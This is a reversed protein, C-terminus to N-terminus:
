VEERPSAAKKKTELVFAYVILLLGLVILAAPRYVLFIGSILFLLGLLALLDEKAIAGQKQSKSSAIEVESM